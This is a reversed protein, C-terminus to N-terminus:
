SHFSFDHSLEFSDCGPWVPWVTPSRLLTRSLDCETSADYIIPRILPFVCSLDCGPWVPWVTPSRLLTRSLDCETSADYIIPFVLPFVCSLDCDPWVPWVTPSRLLTRSLDCETSADYIIPFVLPFVCSLDCDPCAHYIMSLALPFFMIPWWRSLCQLNDSTQTHLPWSLDCFLCAHYMIPRRHLSCSFDTFFFGNRIGIGCFKRPPPEWDTLPNYSNYIFLYIAMDPVIRKGSCHGSTTKWNNKTPKKTCWTRTGRLSWDMRRHLTHVM